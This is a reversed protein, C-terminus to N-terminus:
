WLMFLVLKDYGEQSPQLLPEPALKSRLVEASKMYQISHETLGIQELIQALKYRSRTSYGAGYSMKDASIISQELLNCALNLDGRIHLLSAVQYLSDCTKLGSGLMSQRFDLAKSSLRIADDLRGQKIRIKALLVMDGSFRPNGTSLFTEDTFDKLSPCRKLMEEAEDPKGMRLLTSAMNSYSNGIRDSKTRLRIDIAKNGAALADDINGIETYAISLANLSSAIFADDPHLLRLRIDLAKNFSDLAAKMNNTDLDILGLLMLAGAYTLEHTQDLHLFGQKMFDRAQDYQEREYLYWATRFILECYAKSDSPKVKLRECQKMLFSVHPLCIECKSWATFQHSTVTNWSNPFGNSLLIIVADIYKGNLGSSSLRRVIAEQVLRHISLTGTEYFRDVLASRLLPTKADAFDMEDKLFEFDPDSIEMGGELLMSEHIKDPDLFALLNQLTAAEGSLQELSLTWVTSLTHEYSGKGVRKQDIKSANKIYLPLFEKLSYRQQNIYGSIQAIALPLGGLQDVIKAALEIDVPSSIKQKLLSKFATHGDESDFPQVHVTEAGIINGASSDRSTILISGSTTAPIADELVDPDDANDFILLWRCPTEQLWDKVKSKAAIGDQAEDDEPTLCLKRSATLFGQNMKIHTDASVWFIVDYSSKARNVYELAVRTKGVGGLGHLLARKNTLSAAPDLTVRLQDLIDLRGCFTENIGNPIIYCPFKITQKSVDNDDVKLHQLASILEKNQDFNMRLRASEAEKDVIKSLTKLRQITTDFDSNLGRWGFSVLSKHPNSRFFKITRACFCLMEAYVDVLATELDKNMPITQEYLRFRPLSLSLDNLMDVIKEVTDGTRSALDLIVKLSGWVLGTTAPDAGSCLAIIAAFNSIQSIIPELKQIQSKSRGNRTANSELHQAEGLLAELNAVNPINKEDLDGDLDCRFRQLAKSLLMNQM